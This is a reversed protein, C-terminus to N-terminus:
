SGRGSHCPAAGYACLLSQAADQRLVRTCWLWRRCARSAMRAATLSASRCPSGTIRRRKPVKCTRALRARTPRWGLVPSAALIGARRTTRKVAPWVNLCTTACAAVGPSQTRRGRRPDRTTSWPCARRGRADARRAVRRHPICRSRTHARSPREIDRRTYFPSSPAWPCASADICSAETCASPQAM